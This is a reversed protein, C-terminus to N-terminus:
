KLQIWVSHQSSDSLTATLQWKGASMGTSKTNLNFHWESDTLRFQNGTTAADTPTADIPADSDTQSSWKVAQLTHIGILVPSGGCSATFKLPITSKLKFTRLPDAFSGGTAEAGGIPSLFGTFNLPARTVTFSCSSQNGSADTATVTVTTTGVPFESGSPISYTVTPAPDSNDSVIAPPYTVTVLRETSCPVSLDAPCTISPPETDSAELSVNDLVTAYGGPGNGFPTFRLTYTGPSLTMNLSRERWDEPHFADLIMTAVTQLTDTLVAVSYPTPVTEPEHATSDFWRLVYEMQSTVNFQQSLTFAPSNALAVSQQEEQPYPFAGYNGNLIHADVGVTWSTPTMVQQSDSPIVPSEFSGNLLLNQAHASFGFVVCAALTVIKTKNM